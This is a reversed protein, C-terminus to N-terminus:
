RNENAVTEESFTKEISNKLCEISDKESLGQNIGREILILADLLGHRYITQIESKTM